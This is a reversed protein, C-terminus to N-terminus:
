RLLHPVCRLSSTCAYANYDRNVPIPRYVKKCYSFRRFLERLMAVLTSKPQKMLLRHQIKAQDEM